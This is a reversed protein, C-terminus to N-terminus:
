LAADAASGGDGLLPKRVRMGHSECDTQFLDEQDYGHEYREYFLWWLSSYVVFALGVVAIFFPVALPPIADIATM